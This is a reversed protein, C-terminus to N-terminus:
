LLPRRVHTAFLLVRQVLLPLWVGSSDPLFSLCSMASLQRLFGRRLASFHSSMKGYRGHAWRDILECKEHQGQMDAAEKGIGGCRGRGAVGDGRAHELDEITRVIPSQAKTVDKGAIICAFDIRPAHPTRSLSKALGPAEAYIPRQQMAIALTYQDAESSTDQTGTMNGM